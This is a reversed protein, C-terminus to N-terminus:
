RIRSSGIPPEPQDRIVWLKLAVHAAVSQLLDAREGGDEVELADAALLLGVHM